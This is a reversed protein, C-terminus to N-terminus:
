RTQRNVWEIARHTLETGSALQLKEKLHARYTEVTSVGLRLQSSIERTSHGRGILEFVELERDTLTEIGSRGAEGKPGAFRQLVREQMRPSLYTGGLLVKRIAAMVTETPEQKMVYGRAGARLAREGYLAEDHMSLVLIRLDPRRAILDKILEIGHADPLSVDAIVLGPQSAEIGALAQAATGANGCVLLDEQYNILQSFGDRTIPHDEILFIKHKLKEKAMDAREAM